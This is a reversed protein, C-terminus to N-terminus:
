PEYEVWIPSSWAVSGDKYVVRLYYYNKGPAITEDEIGVYRAMRADIPGSVFREKGNRLIYAYLLKDSRAEFSIIPPKSVRVESGMPLGNISFELYLKEGSTAYNARAKLAEWVNERTLLGRLLVATLGGKYPDERWGEHAHFFLGHSDSGGVFGIRVGKELGDQAFSGPMGGRHPIPLNGAYENAGHISVIEYNTQVEPDNEEWTIGGWAPHHPFAIADAHHLTKFLTVPDYAVSGKHSFLPSSEGGKFYINKHGVRSTSDQRGSWTSHTWEYGNITVFVGPQNYIENLAKLYDWEGPSFHNDGARLADHDTIAVFDRRYVNKYLNLVDDFSGSGDSYATHVHVDGYYIKDNGHKTPGRDGLAEVTKLESPYDVTKYKKLRITKKQPNTTVMLQITISKRDRRAMWFETASTWVGGVSLGRLGWSPEDLDWYRSWEGGEYYAASFVHDHRNFLYLRGSRDFTITPFEFSQTESRSTLDIDQMSGTPEFWSTGDFARVMTYRIVGWDNTGRRNTTWAVWLKGGAWALSAKNDIAPHNTVRQPPSLKGAKFNRIYVDANAGQTHDWAFWISKDPSEIMAPRFAYGAREEIFLEESWRGKEFFRTVIKIHRDLTGREWVIWVRGSRDALVQPRFDYEGNATLQIENGLAGDSFTRAFIEWREDRKASWAVWVVDDPTVAVSPSYESGLASSVQVVERWSPAQKFKLFPGSKQPSTEQLRITRSDFSNLYIGERGVEDTFDYVVFVTGHRDSAIAPYELKGLNERSYGPLSLAESFLLDQPTWKESQHSEQAALNMSLISALVVHLFSVKLRSNM